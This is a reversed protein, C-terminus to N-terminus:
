GGSWDALEVFDSAVADPDNGGGRPRRTDQGHELSREVYGTRCGARACRAFRRHCAVLMLELPAIGLLDAAGLYTEPDPKYHHFLEASLICIWPLKARKAMNTLSFNGNSLTTIIYRTKLRALGPM